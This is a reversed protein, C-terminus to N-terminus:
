RVVQRISQARRCVGTNYYPCSNPCFGNNSNYISNLSDCINLCKGNKRILYRQISSHGTFTYYKNM